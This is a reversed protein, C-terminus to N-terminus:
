FTPTMLVNIRDKIISWLDLNATGASVAFTPTLLTTTPFGAPFAVPPSGGGGFSGRIPGPASPIGPAVNPTMGAGSLEWVARGPLGATYVAGDWYFAVRLPTTLSIDSRLTGTLPHSVVTGGSAVSATVTVGNSQIYIGDTISGATLPTATANVLGALFNVTTASISFLFNGWVRFGQQLQYNAITNQLAAAATAQIVGGDAAFLTFGAGGTFNAAVFQHFDDTM